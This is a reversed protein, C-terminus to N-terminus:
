EPLVEIASISPYNVRPTFYLEIKGQGTPEVHSFTKMLPGTRAERYIDFDKLLMSGNCSVDFVRSGSGGVGGNQIGFWHELFYLKLTYMTGNAVPIVYHFHGFRHWEYLGSNPIKSLDGVFWSLRGGFFYRDPMWLDGATDRYASHGVVIRVPLMHHPTGPLIEIANVFSEPSNFDIHIMGDKGPAVDTYVKTTATDDGGADDVVDLNDAPVGNIAFWVNRSNEQLGSTEAFSLHVEYTGPQAPYSCKFAGRRGSSFLQPDDTGLIARGTVSFTAGGSCFRDSQWSNGARDVFPARENGVLAHIQPGSVSLGVPAPTSQATKTQARRTWLYFILAVLASVLVLALTTIAIRARRKSAPISDPIKPVQLARASEAPLAPPSDSGGSETLIDLGNQETPYPKREHDSLEGRHVFQPVYHGPPLCIQVPHDAGESAYYIELRKRLNHAIVRVVTDVQPDFDPPRGLAQVAICYEKIESTAGEFYKECVFSLFRGLNNTRTFTRSSLLLEVEAREADVRHVVSLLSTEPVDISRPM